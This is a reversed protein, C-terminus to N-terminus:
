LLHELMMLLQTRFLAAVTLASRWTQNMQSIRSFLSWQERATM